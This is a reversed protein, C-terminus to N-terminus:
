QSNWSGALKPTGRVKRPATVPIPDKFGFERERLEGDQGEAWKQMLGLRALAPFSMQQRRMLAGHPLRLIAIQGM